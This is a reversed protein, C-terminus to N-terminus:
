AARTRFARRYATPSVGTVRSFHLRLNQASGFGCQEAVWELGADTGELQERAARVRLQILWRLPSTGLQTEFRRALTRVSTCAQAALQEVTIPEALHQEAWTLVPALSVDPDEVVPQEVYQAQGGDRHPPVVLRRGVANAVRAGFDLAVLHLCLDLGASSGASTFIGGDELYLVDPVFRVGPYRRVLEAAHMWHTTVQRGELLGAPALIFAGTCISVVRAGRAHAAQLAHRLSAPISEPSPIGQPAPVIVTDMAEMARLGEASSAVLGRRLHRAARDAAILHLEYWPDHLEPRDEGFVELPFSLEFVSAGPLLVLGVQHAKDPM